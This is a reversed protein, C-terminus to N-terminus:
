SDNTARVTYTVSDGPEVSSGDAPDSSKSLTYSPVPHETDCDEVCEGGDDDGPTAVNRLSEGWQDAKVTM